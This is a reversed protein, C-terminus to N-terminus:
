FFRNKITKIIKKYGLNEGDPAINRETYNSYRKFNGRKLFKKKNFISRDDLDLIPIGVIKHYEVALSIQNKDMAKSTIAFIRKKLLIADVIASTDFFFVLFAKFINEQSAYKVVEYNRFILKKKTLSDKPHVCIVVKKKFNKSLYDLLKNIKKYFDDVLKKKPKSGMALREAHNFMIDLLVIKKENVLPKASKIVDYANSNILIHEKCYFLNLKKFLSNKKLLKFKKKDSIFRIDIKSVLNLNSLIVTAKHGLDHMAKFYWASINIKNVPVIQSQLNGINSIQIQKVKFYKFLFHIKLDNFTRGFSNIAIINKDAMFNKFDKVSLPNFFEVNKPLKFNKNKIILASNKKNISFDKNNFINDKSKIFSLNGTNIIFLKDFNECIKKLIFKDTNIHQGMKTLSSICFALYKKKM